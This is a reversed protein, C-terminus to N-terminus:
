DFEEVAPHEIHELGAKVVGNLVGLVIFDNRHWREAAMRDSCVRLLTRSTPSCTLTSTKRRSQDSKQSLVRHNRRWRTPRYYQLELM